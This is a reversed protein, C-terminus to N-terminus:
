GSAVSKFLQCIYFKNMKREDGYSPLVAPVKRAPGVGEDESDSLVIEEEQANDFLGSEKFGGLMKSFQSAM